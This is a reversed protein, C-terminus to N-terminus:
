KKREKERCNVDRRGFGSVGVHVMDSEVVTVGRSCLPEEPWHFNFKKKLSSLTFMAIIYNTSTNHLMEFVVGVLSNAHKNLINNIQFEKVLAQFSTHKKDQKTQDQPPELIPCFDPQLYTVLWTHSLFLLLNHTFFTFAEELKRALCHCLHIM